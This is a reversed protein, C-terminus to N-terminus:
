SYRLALSRVVSGSNFWQGVATCETSSRCHIGSLLSGTAGAPSPTSEVNWRGSSWLEALSAIGSGAYQYGVASCHTASSCSVGTLLSSSAGAPLAPTQTAWSGSALREILPAFATGSNWSGVATCTGPASCSIGSLVAGVSGAPDVVSSVSWTTGNWSLGYPHQVFASDTWSGVAVCSTSTPCSVGSLQASTAGAPIGPLMQQSWSGSAWRLALTRQTGGSDVYSGVATCLSSSSCSVGALYSGQHGSPNPSSQHAWSSGRREVLTRTVTGDDYSGVATCETSATCSVGQLESAVWGGSPTALASQAWSGGWAQAQAFTASGNDWRGAGFCSTTGPCAVGALSGSLATGPDATTQNSWTAASAASPVLAAAVALMAVGLATRRMEMGWDKTGGPAHRAPSGMPALM